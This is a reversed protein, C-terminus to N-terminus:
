YKTGWNVGIANEWGGSVQNVPVSGRGGVGRIGGLDKGLLTQVTGDGRVERDIAGLDGPDTAGEVTDGANSQGAAKVDKRRCVEDGREEAPM